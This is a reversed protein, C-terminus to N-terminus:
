DEEKPQPTTELVAKLMARPKSRLALDLAPLVQLDKLTFDILGYMREQMKEHM